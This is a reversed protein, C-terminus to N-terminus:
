ALQYTQNFEARAVRYVEKEDIILIDTMEMPMTSGWPTGFALVHDNDSEEVMTFVITDHTAIRAKVTAKKRVAITERGLLVAHLEAQTAQGNPFQAKLYNALHETVLVGQRVGSLCKYTNYGDDGEVMTSICYNKEFNSASMAYCENLRTNNMVIYSGAAVNNVTEIVAKM